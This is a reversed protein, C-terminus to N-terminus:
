NCKTLIFTQTMQAQSFGVSTGLLTRVELAGGSQGPGEYVDLLLMCFVLLFVHCPRMLPRSPIRPVFLVVLLPIMSCLFLVFFFM